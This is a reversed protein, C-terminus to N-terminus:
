AQARVLPAGHLRLLATIAVLSVIADNAVCWDCVADLIAVQVVLLYASFLGASLAVAAGAVRARAGGSFATGLIAAYAALGLAAVPVGLVDAYASSQVTECGGTSCLLQADGWRAALVYGAVTAGALCLAGLAARLTRDTM